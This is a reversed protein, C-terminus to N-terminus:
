STLVQILRALKEQIERIGPVLRLVPVISHMTYWLIDLSIDKFGKCCLAVSVLDKRSRLSLREDMDDNDHHAVQKLIERTVDTDTLFLPTPLIATNTSDSQNM